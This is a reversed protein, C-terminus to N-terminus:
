VLVKPVADPLATAVEKALHALLYGLAAVAQIDPQLLKSIAKLLASEGLHL